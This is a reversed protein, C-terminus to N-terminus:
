FFLEFSDTEYPFYRALWSCILVLTM